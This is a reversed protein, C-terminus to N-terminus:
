ARQGGCGPCVAAEQSSPGRGYRPGSRPGHPGRRHERVGRDGASPEAGGVV